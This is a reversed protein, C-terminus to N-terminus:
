LTPTSGVTRDPLRRPSSQRNASGLSAGRLGPEGDCRRYGRDCLNGADSEQSLHEQRRHWFSDFRDRTVPDTNRFARRRALVAITGHRGANGSEHACPGSCRRERLPRAALGRIRGVLGTALDACCGGTLNRAAKEQDVHISDKRVDDEVYWDVDVVGETKEFIKRIEGALRNRGDADPGYVEAVLTELVPPGPPVEAVKLRANYRQAIPQLRARVQKAIEHSQLDRADKGFLNVQIDAVNSGQRLFYHRVLGNFNYPSSTGVYTQLDRVEKQKLVEQALQRTIRETEELTTGEPTDIIVQFESKNDFPLMKVKVFQTYLLACSAVLLLSVIGLFGWRLSPRHLLPGMIRRYLRTVRDESEGHGHPGGHKLM